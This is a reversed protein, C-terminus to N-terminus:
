ELKSQRWELLMEEEKKVKQKTAAAIKPPYLERM